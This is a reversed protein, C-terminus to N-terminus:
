AIWDRVLYDQAAPDSPLRNWWWGVGAQSAFRIAFRDDELTLTAFRHDIADVEDMARQDGSIQLWSEVEDRMELAGLYEFQDLPHQELRQVWADWREILQQGHQIPM